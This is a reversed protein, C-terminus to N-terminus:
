VEVGNVAPTLHQAESVLFHSYSLQGLAELKCTSWLICVSLSVTGGEDVQTCGPVPFQSSSDEPLLLLPSM